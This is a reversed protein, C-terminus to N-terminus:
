ALRTPSARPGCGCTPRARRFRRPGQQMVVVDWSGNALAKRAEGNTWHDELNYGGFTVTGYELKRGTVQALAAVHAPLDNTATLSNGVFLIRLSQVPAAEAGVALMAAALLAGLFRTV